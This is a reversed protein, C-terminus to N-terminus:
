KVVVYQGGQPSEGEPRKEGHFLDDEKTNLTIVKGDEVEIGWEPGAGRNLKVLKM